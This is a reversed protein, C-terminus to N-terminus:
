IGKYSLCNSSIKDSFYHSFVRYLGGLLYRDRLPYIYVIRKKKTGLKNLLQKECIGWKFTGSKVEKVFTKYEERLYFEVIQVIQETTFNEKLMMREYTEEWYIPNLVENLLKGM